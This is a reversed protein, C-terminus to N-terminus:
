EPTQFSVSRPIAGIILYFPQLLPTIASDYMLSIVCVDPCYRDHLSIYYFMPTTYVFAEPMEFSWFSISCILIIVWRLEPYIRHLLSLVKMHTDNKVLSDCASKLFSKICRHKSKDCRTHCIIM